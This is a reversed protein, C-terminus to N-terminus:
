RTILDRGRFLQFLVAILGFLLFAHLLGGLTHSTVMGLFWLILLIAALAWIM